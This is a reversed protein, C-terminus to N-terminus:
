EGARTLRRRVEEAWNTIVVFSAGRGATGVTKVMVFRKGDPTIDYNRAVNVRYQDAQFLPVPRGSVFSPGPQIPTAMMMGDGGIFFLERGNRAWLPEAGGASSVQWRGTQVAPFPHVYIEWPGTEDSQYAVWRGDPSIEANFARAKTEVLPGAPGGEALDLLKLELAQTHYILWRGDPSITDPYGAPGPNVVETAGTGHAARRQVQIAVGGGAISSDFMVHRGDPTWAPNYEFAPTHTIRALTEQAFTWVWIDADRTMALRTGDPSLRVDAYAGPPAPILQEQGRRDVWVPARSTGIAPVYVLTGSRSVAFQGDAAGSLGDVLPAPSGTLQFRKSDLPVGLIAGGSAYVLQGGPLLQARRVANMLVKRQGTDISQVVVEAAGSRLLTFLVHAGDDLIQPYRAVEGQRSDLAILRRPPGGAEAVAYVGSDEQHAMGFLIQGADWVAGYPATPLETLLVPPGGALAIKKLRTENAFYAIWQGDPSFAPEMPDDNTGPIAEATLQDLRRLYLQRNAVYVIEAGDHSIAVVRRGTRTFDQGALSHEFRTVPEAVPPLPKVWWGIAVGAAAVVVAAGSWALRQWRGRSTVVPAPLGAASGTEAIWKLEFLVDRATQFREDPDKALCRRVLHDLAPSAAPLVQALPRPDDKLISGLLSASSNGEFPRRGTLMEYLVVGLAFIDTRADADGGEIQEPAMYQVTGLIAGQATLPAAVTPMASGLVDAIAAAPQSKALGFDLLKAGSKTLMVNGPKLDRHVIDHSHAHDLASAIECGIRLADSLPLRGRALRAALTEGELYEMILFHMAPTDPTAPALGVDHLTCINAHTLQSIARAERDFRERFAPDAALQSPLLKVAITRDLRTDRARYIEGMGGAGLPALIEYPGVRTGTAVPMPVLFIAGILFLRRDRPTGASAQERRETIQESTQLILAPEPM